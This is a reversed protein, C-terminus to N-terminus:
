FSRPLGPREAPSISSGVLEEVLRDEARSLSPTSLVVNTTGSEVSGARLASDGGAALTGAPESFLWLDERGRGALSM